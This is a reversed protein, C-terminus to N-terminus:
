GLTSQQQGRPLPGWFTLFPIPIYIHYVYIYPTYPIYVYWLRARAPITQQQLTNSHRRLALIFTTLPNYLYIHITIRAHARVCVRMRIYISLLHYTPHTYPNHYLSLQHILYYTTTYTYIHINYLITMNHCLLKHHINHLTHTIADILLCIWLRCVLM